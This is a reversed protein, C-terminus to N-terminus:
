APGKAPDYPLAYAVVPLHSRLRHSHARISRYGRLILFTPGDFATEGAVVMGSIDGKPYMEALQTTIRLGDARRESRATHDTPKNNRCREGFHALFRLLV